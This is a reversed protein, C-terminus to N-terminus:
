AAQLSKWKLVGKWHGWLVKELFFPAPGSVQKASKDREM